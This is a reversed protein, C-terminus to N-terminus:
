PLEDGAAADKGGLDQLSRLEAPTLDCNPNNGANEVAENFDGRARETRNRLNAAATAALAAEASLMKKEKESVVLERELLKATASANNSREHRMGGYWLSACMLVVGLLLVLYKGLQAVIKAADLQPISIM